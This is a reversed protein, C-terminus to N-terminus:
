FRKRLMAQVYKSSDIDEPIKRLAMSLADKGYDKDRM